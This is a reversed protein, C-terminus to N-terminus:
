YKRWRKVQQGKQRTWKTVKKRKKKAPATTRDTPVATSEVPTATMDTTSTRDTLTATRDTPTVSRSNAPNPTMSDAITPTRSRTPTAGSTM